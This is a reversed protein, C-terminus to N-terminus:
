TSQKKTPVLLSQLRILEHTNEIERYSQFNDSVQQNRTKYQEM